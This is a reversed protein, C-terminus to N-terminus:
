RGCLRASWLPPSAPSPTAIGESREVPQGHIRLNESDGANLEHLQWPGIRYDGLYRRLTADLAGVVIAVQMTKTFVAECTPTYSSENM